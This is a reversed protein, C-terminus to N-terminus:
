VPHFEFHYGIYEPNYRSLYMYNDENDNYKSARQGTKMSVLHNQEDLQWYWARSLYSSVGLQQNFDSSAFLYYNQFPGEDAQILTGGGDQVVKWRFEGYSPVCWGKESLGFFSPEATGPLKIRIVYTGPDLNHWNAQDLASHGLLEDPSKDHTSRSTKM